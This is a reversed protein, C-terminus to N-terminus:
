PLWSGSNLRNHGVNKRVDTMEAIPQVQIERLEIPHGMAIIEVFSIWPLCFPPLRFPPVTGAGEGHVVGLPFALVHGLLDYWLVLVM